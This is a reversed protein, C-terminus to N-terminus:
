SWTGRVTGHPHGDHRDYFLHFVVGRTDGRFYNNGTRFFRHIQQAVQELFRNGELIDFTAHFFGISACVAPASLVKSYHIDALITNLLCGHPM